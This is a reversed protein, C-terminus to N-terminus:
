QLTIGLAARLAKVFDEATTNDDLKFGEEKLYLKADKVLSLAQEIAENRRWSEVLFPECLGRSNCTLASTLVVEGASSLAFGFEIYDDRNGVYWLPASAPLSPDAFAPPFSGTAQNM